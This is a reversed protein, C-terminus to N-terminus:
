KYIIMRFGWYNDMAEESFSIQSSASKSIGVCGGRIVRITTNDKEEDSSKNSDKDSNEISTMDLCIETTWEKLNGAMDFINNIKDKETEGTLKIEDTYNGYDLSTSYSKKSHNLWNLTTDWAFSNCLASRIDSYNFVNCFNESNEKAESFSANYWPVVSPFSTSVITGDFDAKSSEYRAIYFGYYKAVSNVLAKSTTDSEEYKSKSANKRTLKGSEVPVWVFENGHTDSIVYGTDLTGEKHEFGEPIYSPVKESEEIEKINSVKIEKKIQNEKDGINYVFVFEYTGNKAVRYESIIEETKSDDPLIIQSIELDEPIELLINTNEIDKEENELSLKIDIEKDDKDSEIKQIENKDEESVQVDKARILNATMFVAFGILLIIMVVIIFKVIKM